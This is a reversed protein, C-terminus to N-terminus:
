ESPQDPLGNVPQRNISPRGGKSKAKQKEAARL